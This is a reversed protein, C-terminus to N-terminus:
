RKIQRANSKQELQRRIKPAANILYAAKAPSINSGLDQWRGDIFKAEIYQSSDHKNLYGISKSDCHYTVVSDTNEVRHKQNLKLYDLLAPAIKEVQQQQLKAKFDILETRNHKFLDFAFKRAESDIRDSPIRTLIEQMKSVPIQELQNLWVRAATPRLQAATQFVKIGAAPINPEKMLCSTILNRNYHAPSVWSREENEETAGLGYGNDFCASLYCTGDLQRVIDFNHDHRDFNSTLSDVMLIGVFLDAGDKIGVPVQENPPLSIEGLELTEIVTKPTYKSM